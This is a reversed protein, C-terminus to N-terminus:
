WVKISIQCSAIKEIGLHEQIEGPEEPVELDYALYSGRGAVVLEYVGVLAPFAINLHMGAVSLSITAM